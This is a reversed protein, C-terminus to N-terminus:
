WKCWEKSYDNLRMLGEIDRNIADDIDSERQFLYQLSYVPKMLSQYFQKDVTDKGTIDERRIGERIEDILEQNTAIDADAYKLNVSMSSEQRM